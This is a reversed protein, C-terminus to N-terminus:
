DEKAVIVGMWYCGRINKEIKNATKQMIKAFDEDNINYDTRLVAYGDSILEDALKEAITDTDFFKGKSHYYEDKDTGAAYNYVCSDMVFEDDETLASWAASDSLNFLVNPIVDNDNNTTDIIYWEGDIKVKNWAHPLSGDLYGTVVINELGAADALLKFAASYGACVGKGNILIGYATFSDNYMEDVYRFDNAEANDLADFDYEVTSCLYTNIADEKEADTMGDTIIKSIIEDVKNRIENQRSATNERNFDYYVYLTRTETDVSGGKIGLILPNQYRAENFADAVIDMDASEPFSSLDISNQTSLMNVAIYESLASNATISIDNAPAHSSEEASVEAASTEAPAQSAESEEPKEPEEIKETEEPKDEQPEDFTLSTDVSGGKSRLKEQRENIEALDSKLTDPDQATLTYPISFRTRDATAKIIYKGDEEIINDFDYNIVKASYYGDCMTVNMTAPLDKATKLVQSSEMGTSTWAMETPLMHSIDKASLLNSVASAGGDKVAIMGFCDKWYEDYDWAETAYRNDILDDQSISFQRFIYNMIGTEWFPDDEDIHIKSECIWETSTTRAIVQARNDYGEDWDKLMFILYEEAGEVPQWNFRAEGNDTQSLRLQPTQKIEANVKLVTIEPKDLPKGTELDVKRAFYYQSMNGWTNGEDSYLYKGSLGELDEYDSDDIEAIGFYPPEITLKGTEYDWDYAYLDLPKTLEADQYVGFSDQLSIENDWPNYGLTVEISEDRDIQMIEGTYSVATQYKTQLEKIYDDNGTKEAATTKPAKSEAATGATENTESAAAETQSVSEDPATTTNGAACGTLFLLCSMFIFASRSANKKTKM